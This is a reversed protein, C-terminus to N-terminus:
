TMSTHQSQHLTQNGCEPCIKEPLQRLPYGCEPCDSALRILPKPQTILQIGVIIAVLSNSLFPALNEMGQHHASTHMYSNSILLIAVTGMVVAGISILLNRIVIERAFLRLSVFVAYISVLAQAFYLNSSIKGGPQYGWCGLGHWAHNLALGILILATPILLRM